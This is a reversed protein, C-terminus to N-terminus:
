SVHRSLLAVIEWMRRPYTHNQEIWQRARVTVGEREKPHRLYYRVKAKLDLTDKYYIANVGPQFYAACAPVWDSLLFGGALPANFDRQNLSGVCQISHINLNVASSAFIRPLETVPDAPGKYVRRLPSDGLVRLWDENGYLRLDFELLAELTRIRYRTNTEWYLYHHVAPTLQIQKGPAIPYRLALEEFSLFRSALKHEVLTDVYSVMAPSLQARRAAQDVVGGVFSVECAYAPDFRGTGQLDAALPWFGCSGPQFQALYAVYTEDFSFVHETPEFPQHVFFHPDDLFWVLKQCSLPRQRTPLQIYDYFQSATQNILLIWDAPHAFCAQRLNLQAEPADLALRTHHVVWGLTELAALIQRKFLGYGSDRTDSYTWVSPM